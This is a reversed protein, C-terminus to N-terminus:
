LAARASEPVLDLYDPHKRIYGAIYSCSPTVQVGEARLADLASKALTGALGAGQHAPDIETHVLDVHGPTRRYDAFGALEGGVTIEFRNREPHDQVQPQESM